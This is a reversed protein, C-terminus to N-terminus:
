EVRPPFYYTSDMLIFYFSSIRNLNLLRHRCVQRVVRPVLPLNLPGAELKDALEAV